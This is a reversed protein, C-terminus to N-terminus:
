FPTKKVLAEKFYPKLELKGPIDILNVLNPSLKNIAAKFFPHNALPHSTVSSQNALTQFSAPQPTSTTTSSKVTSKAANELEKGRKGSKAFKKLLPNSQQQEETFVPNVSVVKGQIGQEQAFLAL